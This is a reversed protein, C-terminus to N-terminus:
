DIEDDGELESEENDEEDEVTKKPREPLTEPQFDQKWKPKQWGPRRKEAKAVARESEWEKVAEEFRDKKERNREKVAACSKKWEALGAAHSQRQNKRQEAAIEEEKRKREDEVCLAYFEDGSFFKAKGDGMLRRKGQKKKKEEAAQLQGQVRSTYLNALVVSAQMGVLYEKRVTDRAESEVLADRLDQEHLTRVQEALLETYRPRRLPSITSPKFTPPAFTSRIPSTSTLFAASTSALGDVASRVVFPTSTSPGLVNEINETSNASAQITQSDIYDLVMESMVRIPSSQQVPVTTRTSTSLSPAMMETTVIDPNLPIVGTARFASKINSETLTKMHAEAYVALFNTKDVTHGRREWKDRALTWNHKMPGFIVVDLGQYVHTSHSPYGVVEIRYARAYQLFERTYHSNHGDVLLLRRRGKAKTITQKDFGEIWARGIEGSTYGKKSYGL